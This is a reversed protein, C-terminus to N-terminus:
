IEARTDDEFERDDLLAILEGDYYVLWSAGRVYTSADSCWARRGSNLPYMGHEDCWARWDDLPTEKPPIRKCTIRTWRTETM